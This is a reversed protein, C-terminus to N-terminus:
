QECVTWLKDYILSLFIGASTFALHEIINYSHFYTILYGWFCVQGTFCKACGGVPNYLWDPLREISKGYFSFIMGPECLRVFVYAIISLQFLLLVM